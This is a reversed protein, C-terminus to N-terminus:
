LSSDDKMASSPGFKLDDQIKSYVLKLQEELWEEYRWNRDFNEKNDLQDKSSPTYQTSFM